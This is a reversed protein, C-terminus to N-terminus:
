SRLYNMYQGCLELCNGGQHCRKLLFEFLPYRVHGDKLYPLMDAECKPGHFHVLVAAPNRPWYAKWNFTYPLFSPGHADSYFTRLAGQDGPGVPWTIDGSKVIFDLFSPYTERMSQINWLMVGANAAVKEMESEASMAFFMPLGEQGPKAFVHEQFSLDQIKKFKKKTVGLLEPWTVDNQFLIDIDAYLVFSDLLGLIPIDIRLFTGVMADVDSLLHSPKKDGKFRDKSGEWKSIMAKIHAVWSPAHYILRVGASVLESAFKSTPAATTVGIPVLSTKALASKIAVKAMNSASDQEQQGAKPQICFLWKIRKRFIPIGLNKKSKLQKTEQVAVAGGNYHISRQRSRQRQQMIFGSFISVSNGIFVAADMSMLFSVAPWFMRHRLSPMRQVFDLTLTAPTVITYVNFLNMTAFPAPSRSRWHELEDKSLGTALYLPITPDIGESLLVNGVEFTNNLCNAHGTFVFRFRRAGHVFSM